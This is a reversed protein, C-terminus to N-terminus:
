TQELRLRNLVDDFSFRTTSAEVARRPHFNKAISLNDITVKQILFEGELNVPPPLTIAVTRGSRTNPDHTRYSVQTEVTKFLELEARGRATAATENLRRDQIYHEIIGDGGEVAALAAQAPLDDVQVLLQVPDGLTVALVPAVGILIPSSTVVAGSPITATISGPGTAPIGTLFNGDASSTGTYRILQGEVAIWGATPMGTLDLVRLASAGEATPPAGTGAAGQAPLPSGGLNSDPETDTYTTGTNNGISTLERLQNGGATTRFVRRRATGAPGIAIGTVSIAGAATTNETPAIAGGTGSITVDRFTTTTNDPIEVILRYHGNSEQRYIRRRIVRPDGSTQVFMDAGEGVDNASNFSPLPAPSLTADASVDVFSTDNNNPIDVLHRWPLTPAGFGGKSARYLRRGVVRQDGAIPINSISVSGAGGPPVAVWTESGTTEGGPTLFTVAYYYYGEAIQGGSPYAQIFIGGGPAGVIRGTVLAGGLTAPTEGGGATVFSQAYRYSVGVQIPGKVPPNFVGANVQGPAGVGGITVPNSLAGPDSRAGDALEFTVAYQYPGGILRGATGSAVAAAPAAPATPPPSGGTGVGVTNTTVGGNHTGAYTVRSTEGLKALGGAPNFPIAGSVPLIPDGAPLTALVTAGDGEVTIRTRVQSLDATIRLDAFDAGPVIPAPDSAAEIGTFFHLDGAYDIFWYAGIKEAIRSLARSVEEFTFVIGGDVAALGTQVHATTITPAFTQIVNLVIATASSTGYAALVKRRNLRRTHDTCTVHLRVHDPQDFEHFQERTVIQGGFIQRAPDVTGLYINIPAGPLIPPPPMLGPPTTAINFAAGDFGGADFPGTVAPGIRPTYVLTLAATNPADNLLDDIRVHGVRAFPTVTQGGIVIVAASDDAM